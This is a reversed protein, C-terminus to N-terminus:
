RVRWCGTGRDTTRTVFYKGPCKDIYAQIGNWVQNSTKDPAFFCDGVAMKHFPYLPPNGGRSGWKREPLPVGSEVPYM